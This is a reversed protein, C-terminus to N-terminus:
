SRRTSTPWGPPKEADGSVLPCNPERTSKTRRPGTAPPRRTRRACTPARSRTATTADDPSTTFTQSRTSGFSPIRPAALARKRMPRSSDPGPLGSTRRPAFPPPAPAPPRQYGAPCDSRRRDGASGDYRRSLGRCLGKQNARVGKHPRTRLMTPMASPLPKRQQRRARYRWYSPLRGRRKLFLFQKM